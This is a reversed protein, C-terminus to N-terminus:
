KHLRRHEYKAAIIKLSIRKFAQHAPTSDPHQAAVFVSLFGCRWPRCVNEPCSQVHVIHQGDVAIFGDGVHSVANGFHDGNVRDCWRGAHALQGIFPRRL